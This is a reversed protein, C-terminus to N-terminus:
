CWFLIIVLVFSKVNSFRVLFNDILLGLAIGWCTDGDHKASTQSIVVARLLIFYFLFFLSSSFFFLFVGDDFYVFFLDVCYHNMFWTWVQVAFITSSTDRSSLLLFLNTSHFQFIKCITIFNFESPAFGFYQCKLSSWFWKRALHQKYM